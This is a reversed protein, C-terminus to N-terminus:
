EEMWHPRHYRSDRLGIVVLGRCMIPFLM